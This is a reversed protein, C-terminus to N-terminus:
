DFITLNRHSYSNQTGAWNYVTIPTNGGRSWQVKITTSVGPTVSIPYMTMHANWSVIKYIGAIDDRDYDTTISTTGGIIVGDKLVQFDVYTGARSLSGVDAHGAAGFNVFITAHKPTFTISMTAMDTPTGTNISIDSTGVVSQINDGYRCDAYNTLIWRSQTVNYQLTATSYQGVIIFDKAGPCYIRNSATSVADHILTMTQATTNEITILQGDSGVVPVIGSVSFSATPGTIRYLSYSPNTLAVNNNAGNTLTLSAGERLSLAGNVDLTTKPDSNAVGVVQANTTQAATMILIVTIATIIAKMHKQKEQTFYKKEYM